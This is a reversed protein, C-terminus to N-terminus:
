YRSFLLGTNHGGFGFSHSIAADIDAATKKGVFNLDELPNDLNVSPHLTQEQLTKVTILAEVAGSAGLTHGLISKTSNLYPRNTFEQKIIESEVRDNIETGTGHTNIYTIERQNEAAVVKLHNLMRKIQTGGSDNSMMSYADFTESYASLECLIEAGRAKAHEETEIILSAAAGESFLFGSRDKDFPRNATAPNDCNQVLTGAIDFSMMLGGADDSFYESGGTVVIDAQGLQLTQYALGIAGSGSACALSCVQNPGHLGFQIGIAAPVSNAMTNSVVFPNVRRLTTADRQLRGLEPAGLKDKFNKLIHHTYNNLISTVGGIGSGYFVGFRETNSINEITKRTGKSGADFTFGAQQLAEETALIAHLAVPDRQMLESSKFGLTKFDLAPLPSYITSNFDTYELWEAPVPKVNTQGGLAAQWLTEVGTGFTTVAGLGTVVIKKM